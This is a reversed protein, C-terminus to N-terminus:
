RMRKKRERPHKEVRVPRRFNRFKMRLQEKWSEQLLSLVHLSAIWGFLTPVLSFWLVNIGDRYM